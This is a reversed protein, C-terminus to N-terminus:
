PVPSGAKPQGVRAATQKNEDHLRGRNVMLMGRSNHAMINGLPDVRNQLPM